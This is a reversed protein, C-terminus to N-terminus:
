KSDSLNELIESRSSNQIDLIEKKSIMGNIHNNFSSNFLREHSLHFLNTGERYIKLKLGKFRYYRDFDDNGWGYHSENELGLFTFDSKSIFVAGGYLINDHLLTMKNKHRYLFRVDKKRILYRRIVPPVDYCFGNYPYSVSAENNRLKYICNLIASKEPIIDTDWIAVYPTDTAIVMNNIHKTKYLVPDEDEKFEYYIQANKYKKIMSQLIRNNCNSAERVYINTSFNKSLLELIILINELRQISDVRILILFTVDTLNERM